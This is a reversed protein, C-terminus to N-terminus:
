VTVDLASGGLVGNTRTTRSSAPGPPASHSEPRPAGARTGPRDRGTDGGGTGDGAYSAAGSGNDPGAGGATTASSPAQASPLDRLVLQGPNRGISELLSRLHASGDRLLDRAQAGAAIDVDVHDGRVTVTLHIEGLDAPHLKLMMRHEGDGRTVVRAVAPAVQAVVTTAPAASTPAAGQAGDPKAAQPGATVGSPATGLQGVHDTAPGGDEADSRAPREAASGALGTVGALTVTEVVTGAAEGTTAGSDGGRATPMPGPAVGEQRQGAAAADAGPDAAEAVLAGAAATGAASSPVGPTDAAKATGPNENAALLDQTASSGPAAGLVAAGASEGAAGASAEDVPAAATTVAPDRTSGAPNPVPGAAGAAAASSSSTAAVGRDDRDKGTGGGRKPPDPKKSATLHGDLVAAFDHGGRAPADGRERDRARSTQNSGAAPLVPASLISM